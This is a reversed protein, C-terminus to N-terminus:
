IYGKRVLQISRKIVEDLLVVPPGGVFAIAVSLKRKNGGSYSGALRDAYTELHMRQLLSFYLFCMQHTCKQPNGKKYDYHCHHVGCNHHYYHHGRARSPNWYPPTMGEGWAHASINGTPNEFIASCSRRCCKSQTDALCLTGFINFSSQIALPNPIKHTSLQYLALASARKPIGMNQLMDFLTFLMAERLRLMMYIPFGRNWRKNNALQLSFGPATPQCSSTSVPLLGLKHSKDAPALSLSLLLIFSSLPLKDACHACTVFVYVGNALCVCSDCARVAESRIWVWMRRM